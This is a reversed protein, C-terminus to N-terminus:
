KTKCTLSMKAYITQEASVVVQYSFGDETVSKKKLGFCFTKKEAPSIVSLFKVNKIKHLMVEAKEAIGILEQAIQITCVGPTIPQGPFHAKYIICDEELSIHFLTEDGKEEIDIITYLNNNLIM